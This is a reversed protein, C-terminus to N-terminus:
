NMSTPVYKFTSYSYHGFYLAGGGILNHSAMFNEEKFCCFLEYTTLFHQQESLIRMFCLALMLCSKKVMDLLQNSFDLSKFSILLRYSFVFINAFLCISDSM